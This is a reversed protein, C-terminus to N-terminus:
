KGHLAGPLVGVGPRYGLQRSITRAAIQLQAILEPLREETIGIRPGGLSLAAIVNNTYDYIPAAMAIFGVELEERAIAYGQRRIQQLAERLHAPETVTQPTLSLLPTALYADVEAAPRYALLLKGTSTAHLPLRMGMDRPAGAPERSTVEDLVLMQNRNLVELSVAIGSEHALREMEPRAVTHLETARLAAGGLAVLELGLRYGGSVPNRTILGESELAALVRHTTTKNLGVHESLESLGWEQHRDDFRKLIAIARTISQAGPYAEVPQSTTMINRVM